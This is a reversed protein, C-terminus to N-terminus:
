EELMAVARRLREIPTGRPHAVVVAASPNMCDHMRDDCSVPAGKALRLVTEVWMHQAAKLEAGSESAIGRDIARALQGALVYVANEGMVGRIVPTGTM